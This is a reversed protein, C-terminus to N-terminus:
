KKVGINDVNPNEAAAVIGAPANPGALIQVDPSAITKAMATQTTLATFPVSLLLGTLSAAATVMHAGNEGFLTTLAGLAGASALATAMGVVMGLWFVIPMKPM